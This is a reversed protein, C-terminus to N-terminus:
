TTYWGEILIDKGDEVLENRLSASGVMKVGMDGLKGM